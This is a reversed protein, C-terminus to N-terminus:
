YGSNNASNLMHRVSTTIKFLQMMLSRWSNFLGCRGRFALFSFSECTFRGDERLRSLSPHLETWFVFLLPPQSFSPVCRHSGLSPARSVLRFSLQGVTAGPRRVVGGRAAQSRAVPCRTDGDPCKSHHRKKLVKRFGARPQISASKQM